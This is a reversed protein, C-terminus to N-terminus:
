RNSAQADSSIPTIDVLSFRGSDRLLQRLQDSLRGLREQEDPRAGRLAGELSTDILEFDFVAVSQAVTTGCSVFLLAWLIVLYSRIIMTPGSPGLARAGHNNTTGPAQATAANTQGRNPVAGTSHSRAITSGSSTVRRPALREKATR